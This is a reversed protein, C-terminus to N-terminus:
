TGFIVHHPKRIKQEKRKRFNRQPLQERRFAEGERPSSKNQKDHDEEEEEVEVGEELKRQVIFSALTTGGNGRVVKSSRVCTLRYVEFLFLPVNSKRELQYKELEKFLVKSKGSLTTESELLPVQRPYGTKSDRQLMDPERIDKRFLAVYRESKMYDM